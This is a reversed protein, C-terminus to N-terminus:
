RDSPRDYIRLHRYYVELIMLAMATSYLRGGRERGLDGGGFYWSGAEHGKHSQTDALYNIIKGRWKTWAEGGVQHMLRTAYYNYYMNTKSPGQESLWEVGRKLASNDKKWGLHMRMLLGVATTTKRDTAPKTYGYRAGEDTQVSDLFMSAKKLTVPPVCLYGFHGSKLATLQWGTVSLDGKQRPQYRWGGGVPDQAYVVFDIAKQAPGHLGKDATMAYAECLALTAIGQSYMTGGSEHFSGGHETEKMRSVLFDLGAKV